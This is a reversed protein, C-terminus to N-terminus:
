WWSHRTCHQFSAPIYRGSKLSRWSEGGMDVIKRRCTPCRCLVIGRGFLLFVDSTSWNKLAISRATRKPTWPNQSPKLGNCASQHCEIQLQPMMVHEPPSPQLSIANPDSARSPVANPDVHSSSPSHTAPLAIALHHKLTAAIDEEDDTCRTWNFPFIIKLM